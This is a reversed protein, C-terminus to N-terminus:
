GGSVPDHHIGDSIGSEHLANMSGAVSILQADVRQMVGRMRERREEILWQGLESAAPNVLFFIDLAADMSARSMKLNENSGLGLQRTFYTEGASVPRGFADIHDKAARTDQWPCPDFFGNFLRLEAWFEKDTRHSTMLLGFQLYRSSLRDQKGM